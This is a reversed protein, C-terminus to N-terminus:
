SHMSQWSQRLRFFRVTEERDTHHRQREALWMLEDYDSAFSPSPFAREKHLVGDHAYKTLAVGGQGATLVMQFVTLLLFHVGM